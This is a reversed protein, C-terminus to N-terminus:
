RSSSDRFPSVPLAAATTARASHPPNASRYSSALGSALQLAGALVSVATLVGGLRLAARTSFRWPGGRLAGLPRVNDVEPPPPAPAPRLLPAFATRQISVWSSLQEDCVYASRSIKGWRLLQTVREEPLPGETKGHQNVFWLM